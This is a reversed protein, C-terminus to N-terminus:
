RSQHGSGQGIRVIEVGPAENSGSGATAVVKVDLKEGRAVFYFPVTQGVSSDLTETHTVGGVTVAITASADRAKPAVQVERIEIQRGDDSRFPASKWTWTSARSSLDSKFAYLVPSNATYIASMLDNAPTGAVKASGVIPSLTSWSETREDYLLGRSLLWFNSVYAHSLATFSSAPDLQDGISKFSSGDSTLYAGRLQSIFALGAITQALPQIGGPIRADSMGQIVPDTIDGQVSVWAALQHGLLIDSPAFAKMAVITSGQESLQVPLTNSAPFSSVSQSDSFRLTAGQAAIIRDDQVCVATTPGALRKDVAGTSRNITWVGEQSSQTQFLNFVVFGAGTSDVFYDFVIGNPGVGAGIPINSGLQSWSSDSDDFFKWVQVNTSNKLILYRHCQQAAAGQGGVLYLGAVSIGSGTPLGTTTVAVGKMSARLGGGFDPIVDEMQQAAGAPMQWDDVTWLGPTFDRIEAWRLHRNVPM